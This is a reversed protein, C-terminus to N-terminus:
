NHRYNYFDIVNTGDIEYIVESTKRNDLIYNYTNLDAFTVKVGYYQYVFREFALKRLNYENWFIDEDAIFGYNSNYINSIDNDSDKKINGVIVFKKDLHNINQLISSGIVTNYKMFQNELSMYSAQDQILYNRFLLILLIGSIIKIYKSENLIIIFLFIWLYSASMLLQLKSDSIVFIISNLFVPLLIIVISGIIINRKPVKNHVMSIVISIIMVSLLLLHLIHNYFYTNKMIDNTFFFKYFLLYSDIIKSPFSFLTNVGVKDANSYSAMNIHFINQSIKMLIFYLIVGCLFTLLYGFAEKYDVKNKILLYLNYIVFFTIIFSFYAQYMSLTIIISILSILYKLYKGKAKYFIYISFVGFFFSLFYGIACYHFLLTSSIIPSVTFLLICLIKSTVNKINFLDIILLVSISILFFSIFLDIHPFSIFGKLIGIVYLGFRGLSIEWSYGNYFYNNLLIDAGIINKSLLPFHLLILLIFVITILMINDKKLLRKM